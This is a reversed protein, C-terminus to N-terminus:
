PIMGQPEVPRFKYTLITAGEEDERFREIVLEVDMGAELSRSQWDTLLSFVRVGEPLDIYAIAYPAELGPAPYGVVTHTYIRGRRSLLTEELDSGLCKSCFSRRPFSLQGCSPCRTGILQPKEGPEAPFTFLGERIPIGKLPTENPVSMSM